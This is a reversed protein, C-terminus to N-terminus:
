AKPEAVYLQGYFPLVGEWTPTKGQQWELQALALVATASHGLRGDANLLTLPRPWNELAQQWQTPTMVTDPQQATLGKEVDQRDSSYIATYLEGRQASMQVAWESEAPHNSRQAWVVAALSSIAFLPCGLQQALTRATVVGIRTGTYGGPGIAVALFALDSWAQPNLFEALYHHLQSSLARDLDWTECRVNSRQDSVARGVPSIALGLEPTTTHIALAYPV